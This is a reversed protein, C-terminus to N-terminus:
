HCNYFTCYKYIENVAERSINREGLREKAHRCVKIHAPNINNMESVVKRLTRLEEPNMDQPLKRVVKNNREAMKVM